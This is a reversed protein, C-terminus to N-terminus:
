FACVQRMIAEESSKPAINYMTDISVEAGDVNKNPLFAFARGAKYKLRQCDITDRSYVYRYKTWKAKSYDRRVWFTVDPLNRLNSDNLDEIVSLGVDYKGRVVDNRLISFGIDGNNAEVDIWELNFQPIHDIMVNRNDDCIYKMLNFGSSIPLPNSIGYLGQVELVKGNKLYAWSRDSYGGERTECQFKLRYLFYSGDKFSHKQWFMVSKENLFSCNKINKTEIYASVGSAAGVGALLIAWNPDVPPSNMDQVSYCSPLADVTRVDESGRNLAQWDNFLVKFREDDRSQQTERLPQNLETAQVEAVKLVLVMFSLAIFRGNTV